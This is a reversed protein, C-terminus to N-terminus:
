GQVPKVDREAKITLTPDPIRGTHGYRPGHRLLLLPGTLTGLNTFNLPPSLTRFLNSPPGPLFLQTFWLHNNAVRRPSEPPLWGPRRSPGSLEAGGLFGLSEAM